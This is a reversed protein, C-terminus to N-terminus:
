PAETRAVPHQELPDDLRFREVGGDGYRIIRLSDRIVAVVDGHASRYLPNVGATWVLEARISDATGSREGELGPLASGPFPPRPELGALDVLTAPLDRLTVPREVRTGARAKGPLWVVLPVQVTTRYLSRGHGMEGHEGFEEGHDSTIVVITSDLLGRQDLSDLLANVRDDLYGLMGAYAAKMELLVRAPPVGHDPLATFRLKPDRGENGPLRRIAADFPPPPLYPSHADFYNLFVMFPHGAPRRDLWRLAEANVTEASKRGLRQYWKVLLRPTIRDGLIRLIAASRTLEGPDILYDEYHMFGRALGTKRNTYVKNAVFGATAYGHATLVGSLTPYGPGLPTTWNAGHEHPWRGTFLSAHSPLTWSSPAMARDYRIGGAARRALAPFHGDLSEGGDFDLGRVTDLIIFVINPGHGPPLSQEARTERWWQRVHWGTGLVVTIGALVPTSGRMLRMFPGPHRLVVRGLQYAVALALVVDTIWHLRPYCLLVALTGLFLYTRLAVGFVPKRRLAQVGALMMGVLTFLIVEALPAMWLVDHSLFPFRHRLHWRLAHISVEALGTALGAWLTLRLWSGTSDLSRAPERSM